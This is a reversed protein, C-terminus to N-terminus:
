GARFLEQPSIRNEYFAKGVVVSDVGYPELLSLATLDDVSAVGGSATVALGTEEAIRRTYSLNPGTLMGDRTIDTYLVRTLGFPAFSRALDIAEIGSDEQWGEICTRGAIADIALVVRDGGYTTLAERAAEENRVAMTGILVREVGLKLWAEVHQLERIGGGLQVPLGCNAIINQVVTFNQGTGTLAGELDVIHLMRAGYSEYAQAIALPNASYVKESDPQGQTLRVCKGGKLDIAPIVTIM